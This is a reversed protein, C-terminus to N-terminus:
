KFVNDKLITQVVENHAECRILNMTIMQKKKSYLARILRNKLIRNSKNFVRGKGYLLALYLASKSACFGKWLSQIKIKDELVKSAENMNEVRKISDEENVLVVGNATANILKFSINSDNDSLEIDVLLGENWSLDGERYGFVSNGQGYVITAGNYKETTGICHSHQCLVIDAGCEAMKRCKKQIIPSPYIYHEIGGHYLVILYDCKNKAEKIEDFSEYPDFHNAGPTYETALNFEADAFSMIGINKGEITIFLPEKAEVMDKGGGVTKVEQNQCERLTDIVGQEGYDLIHNNALSLINFGANKLLEIDKPLAKLSPGCKTIKTNLETGPCEFNAIAVDAEKINNSVEGFLSNPCVSDFLKRYDDTPCIDGLIVIKITKEM